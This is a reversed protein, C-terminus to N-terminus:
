EDGVFGELWQEWPFREHFQEYPGLMTYWDIFPTEECWPVYCDDGLNQNCGM